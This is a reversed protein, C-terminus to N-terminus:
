KITITKPIEDPLISIMPTATQIKSSYIVTGNERILLERGIYQTPLTLVLTLPQNYIDNPLQDSLTLDIQELKEGHFVPNFNVQAHARERVYLTVTNLSAVWFDREKISELNKKFQDLKIFGYGKEDGIAHYTLIIWATKNLTQDLYPILQQNTGVCKECNSFSHDQMVLTPLAFWNPPEKEQDSVLYPQTMFKSYHLRGSLFGSDALAKQTTPANGAGRPYSYAVPHLGWEKMKQYCKQFSNLAQQYTFKDHNDHKHGHGFYGFRPPVIKKLLYDLLAPNRSYDYTIIEYDITLQNEIILNNVIRNSKSAPDGDDYTLTIAATHNNYWKAILPVPLSQSSNGVVTVIM